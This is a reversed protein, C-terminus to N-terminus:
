GPPIKPCRPRVAAFIHTSLFRKDCRGPPRKGRSFWRHGTRGKQGERAEDEFWLQLTKGPHAAVLAELEAALKKIYSARKSMARRTHPGHKRGPYVASRASIPRSVVRV